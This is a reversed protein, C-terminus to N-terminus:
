INVRYENETLRLGRYKLAYEAPDPDPDKTYERRLRWLNVNEYGKNWSVKKYDQRLERINDFLKRKFGLATKKARLEGIIDAALRLAVYTETKLLYDNFEFEADIVDIYEYAFDPKVFLRECQEYFHQPDNDKSVVLDALLIDQWTHTVPSSRAHRALQVFLNDVRHCLQEAMVLVTETDFDTMPKENHLISAHSLKIRITKQIQAKMEIMLNQKFDTKKEVISLVPLRFHRKVSAMDESALDSVLDESALDESVLDESSSGDSVLSESISGDSVLDTSEDQDSYKMESESSSAWLQFEEENEDSEQSESHTEERHSEESHTEHTKRAEHTSETGSHTEHLGVVKRWRGVESYDMDREYEECEPEVYVTATKPDPVVLSPLPWKSWRPAPVSPDMIHMLCTSYLHVALDNRFEQELDDVIDKYQGLDMAFM